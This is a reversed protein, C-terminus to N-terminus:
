SVFKTLVNATIRSVNNDYTNHSLSGCWCISGVSFVAGNNPTEFYVMDARVTALPDSLLKADIQLHDEIVPLIAASHGASSALVLTHHPTGLSTDIRDFEDGVAGGFVLGFDGIVEDAAIGEFIFAAREDFSDPQRVYGPAIEGWGQATFGVGVLRNPTKGRHRWLGGLEGTTSHYLEGPASNWARTGAMGRRVEVVHARERDVSTVWYFGNGGLYMLRGGASLYSELATMMPTTWYEPHTGTIMVRYNALLEDGEAHLDEDTAADYTFGKQELWDILYLDAALHRPAGTLPHRYKPRMNAIPRLRSSYACGSGDTHLDYLSMALEPHEALYLDQPDWNVHSEPLAALHERAADMRDNAYAQYTMTPMLLLAPANASGRSPRVIFPVHDEREGATLRAAYVGSRMGVPVFLEFDSGWGADELDDEHFHIAGYEQPVHKCNIENATWNHGTVARTPMNVAVGHLGHRSRETVRASAVDASFDWAGALDDGAVKEPPVGKRLREIENCRLARAFVCPSDIKGNYLGQGALRNAGVIEGHTAAILLPSDNKGPGRSQVAEDIVASSPDSPWNSLPLQYLYVVRADADLTGAVFYWESARLAKGTYLRTVDGANDGIWLGLDGNQGIVLGYGVEDSSWKSLVGQVKGKQPTTPYIWAQLTFGNRLGLAPHDEVIVYSGAYAIQKRGSYQGDVPTDVMEEKFGPGDPNEDGHILRVITANYTPQDTSVMFRIREGPPVSFRDTYGILELPM